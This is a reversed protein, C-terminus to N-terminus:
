PVTVELETGGGAADRVEVAGGYASVRDRISRLGFGEPAGGVGRGDDAVRLRMHERAGRVSVEVRRADGHRAANAIAEGVIRGADALLAPSLESDVDVDLAVAVEFRAGLEHAILELAEATTRGSRDHLEGIAGRSHALARRAAITLPHEEGLIAGLRASHAAILALDQALGDHLDRALRTREARAAARALAARAHWDGRVCWRLILAVAGGRLVEVSSFWQPPVRPIAFFAAHAAALLFVPWALERYGPSAVHEERALAAAASVLLATSLGAILSALPHDAAADLGRLPAGGVPMIRGGLVLALLVSALVSAAALGGAVAGTQEVSRGIPRGQTAVAVVFFALSIFLGGVLAAAGFRSDSSVAATAPLTVTVVQITGLTLLACLTILDRPVRTVLYRRRQLWAAALTSLAILTETAARLTPAHYVLPRGLLAAVVALAALPRWAM